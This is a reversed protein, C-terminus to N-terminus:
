LYIIHERNNSIMDDLLEDSQIGGPIHLDGSKHNKSKRSQVRDNWKKIDELSSTSIHHEDFDSTVGSEEDYSLIRDNDNFKSLFEKLDKVTVM